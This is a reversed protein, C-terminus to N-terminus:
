LLNVEELREREEDTLGDSCMFYGESDSDCYKARESM